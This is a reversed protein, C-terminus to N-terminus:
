LGSHIRSMRAGAMVTTMTAIAGPQLGAPGPPGAHASRIIAIKGSISRANRHTPHHLCQDLALSGLADPHFLDRNRHWAGVFHQDLQLLRGAAAGVQVDVQPIFPALARDLGAEDDAVLEDAADDLDTGAHRSVLDALADRGLAVDD